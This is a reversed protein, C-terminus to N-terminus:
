SITSKCTHNSSGTDAITRNCEKQVFAVANAEGASNVRLLLQNLADIPPLAGSRNQHQFVQTIRVDLMAQLDATMAQANSFPQAQMTAVILLMTLLLRLFPLSRHLPVLLVSSSQISSVASM